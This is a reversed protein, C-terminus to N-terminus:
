RRPLCIKHSGLPPLEAERDGLRVTIAGIGVTGKASKHRYFRRGRQRLWERLTRSEMDREGMKEILNGLSAFRIGRAGGACRAVPAADPRFEAPDGIPLIAVPRLDAPAKLVRAVREDDFAGVWCSALGLATAALQAYAAAITADQLSFLERGRRDYKAASRAPDALFVVVISAQRIFSQGHAAEALAAKGEIGEVVVIRYAQLDGASPALLAADLVMDIKSSTISALAFARVSKREDLVDFFEVVSESRGRSSATDVPASDVVPGVARRPAIPLRM